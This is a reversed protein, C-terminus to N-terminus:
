NSFINYSFVIGILGCTVSLVDDEYFFSSMGYLSQIFMAVKDVEKSVFEERFESTQHFVQIITSYTEIISKTLQHGPHCSKNSSQQHVSLFSVLVQIITPIAELANSEICLIIDSVTGLSVSRVDEDM